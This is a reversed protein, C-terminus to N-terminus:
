RLFYRWVAYGIGAVAGLILLCFLQGAPRVIPPAGYHVIMMERDIPEPKSMPEPRPRTSLDADCFPCGTESSRVHRNCRPCPSLSESM